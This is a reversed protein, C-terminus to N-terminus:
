FLIRVEFVHSLGIRDSYLTTWKVTEDNATPKLDKDKDIINSAQFHFNARYNVQVAHTINMGMRGGIVGANVYITHSKDDTDMWSASEYVYGTYPTFQFMPGLYFEKALGVSLYAFTFDIADGNNNDDLYENSIKYSKGEIGADGYLKIGTPASLSGARGLQQSVNLELRAVPGTFAGSMYGVSLGFGLDNRQEIFMGYNDIHGTSVKYFTSPETNGSTVSMNDSIKKARIVATRKSYKEGNSKIRNEYVFYRQDVYAGEKTGIKARIPDVESVFTRVRLEPVEKELKFVADNMAELVLETMLEKPSKQPNPAGSQGPNLQTGSVPSTIESLYNVKFRYNDFANRKQAQMEPTDTENIWLNQYFHMSTESDFALKYLYAHLTAKYGNRNEDTLLNSLLNDSSSSSSSSTKKEALIEKITKLNDFKLVLIYSNPILQEGADELQRSKRKSVQAEHYEQDTANYLGREAILSMDFSGDQARNFWKSIVENTIHNDELLKNIAIRNPTEPDFPLPGQGGKSLQYFPLTNDNYKNPITIAPFVESLLQSHKGPDYDYLLVTLSARDYNSSVVNRETNNEQATLTASAVVVLLFTFFAPRNM